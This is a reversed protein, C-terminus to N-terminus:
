RAPEPEFFGYPWDLLEGAMGFRAVSIKTTDIGDQEDGFMLVSIQEPSLDGREVFEGLRNILAESHTEVIFNVSRDINTASVAAKLMDALLAQHAPHLHLEPQEIAFYV